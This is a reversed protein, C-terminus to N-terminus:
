RYVQNFGYLLSSNNWLRFTLDRPPGLERFDGHLKILVTIKFWINGGTYYLFCLNPPWGRISYSFRINIGV